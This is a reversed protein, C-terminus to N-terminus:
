AKHHRFAMNPKLNADPNNPTPTPTELATCYPNFQPSDGSPTNPSLHPVSSPGPLATSPNSTLGQQWSSSPTTSTQLSQPEFGSMTDRCSSRFHWSVPDGLHM